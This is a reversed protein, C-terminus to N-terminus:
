GFILDYEDSRVEKLSKGNQIDAYAQKLFDVREQWDTKFQTTSRALQFVDDYIEQHWTGTIFKSFERPHDTFFRHCSACLCFANMLLTRTSNFRRSNIHACQLQVASGHRGCHECSGELRVVQSHLATAKGKLGKDRKIPM